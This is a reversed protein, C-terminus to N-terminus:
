DGEVANVFKKATWFDISLLDISIGDQKPNKVHAVKLYLEFPNVKNEFRACQINFASKTYGNKGDKVIEWRVRNQLAIQSDEFAQGIYRAEDPNRSLFMYLGYGFLNSIPKQYHNEPRLNGYLDEVAGVPEWHLNVTKM